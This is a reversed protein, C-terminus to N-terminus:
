QIVLGGEIILPGKITLQISTPTSITNIYVINSYNSEVGQTNYATVAFTHNVATNLGTLTGTTQNGINVIYKNVCSFTNDECHHIKYGALDVETNADWQLIVDMGFCTSTILLLTVLMMLIKM